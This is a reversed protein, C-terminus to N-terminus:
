RKKERAEDIIRRVLETITVGLRYAEKRLWEMQPDTFDVTRRM